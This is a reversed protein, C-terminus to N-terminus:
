PAPRFVWVAAPERGSSRVAVFLQDAEALFFSTRSGSATPVQAIRQYVTGRRELVDVVGEGCSVYLRHRKADIFVDDADGCSPLNFVTSGDQAFAMLRSPARFAVIVLDGDPDIAMPFNAAAERMPWSAIQKGAARDVVAIQGADPVNVFIRGSATDLEFAEPHAKLAIDAVKTRTAPDIVALAGSAYGVVVRHATADLRINDADDGLEIRGAPALDAGHFLFVMGDGANAVFLADTSPEYAIGQPENFGTLTRLLKREKLDIVGISNNALEAVFLRQRAADIAFHDIRGSVDGLPIKSELMLPAPEAAWGAGTVALIAASPIHAIWRM